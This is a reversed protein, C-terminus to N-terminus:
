RAARGRGTQYGPGLGRGSRTSGPTCCDARKAHSGSLSGRVATNNPVRKWLSEKIGLAKCVV